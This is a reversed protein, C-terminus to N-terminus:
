RCCQNVWNFLDPLDYDGEHKTAWRYAFNVDYGQNALRTALLKPIAFATEADAAGHRIWWHPAVQSQTTKLYTMPNIAAVLDPDARSAAELTHSQAFETFHRAPMLRNGFLQNEPHSLDLADFAPLGKQRGLAATYRYWDIAVIHGDKTTVGASNGLAQGAVGAAQAASLLDAVIAERFSGTGNLNLTLDHGQDDRLKLGNIYAIFAQQRESSWRQEEGSLHSSQVTIQPQEDVLKLSRQTWDSIGHFQWEYADDAHELDMIPCYTAVAFVADTGPAAGLEQLPTEFFDAEGSAGLLAAAAGGAGTGSVVIHNPDGPLWGANYTVYRVAAKLDVIFAPAKGTFENNSDRSTWGRAGASVVVYGQKLAALMTAGQGYRAVNEPFDSPGPRYGGITNPMFIPASVRTYGNVQGGNFYAEPVFINLRQIPDVPRSVYDIQKFSRYAIAEGAVTTTAKEYTSEDFRLPAQM